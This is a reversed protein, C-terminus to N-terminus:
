RLARAYDETDSVSERLRELASRLRTRVTEGDTNTAVALEALTLQATLKMVLAEREVLPLAATCEAIRRSLLQSRASRSAIPSVEPDSEEISTTRASPTAVRAGEITSDGHGIILQHLFGFLWSRFRMEIHFSGAQGVLALFASQTFETALDAAGTIGYATSYVLRAYRRVVVALATRDGRQYRVMLAEDTGERHSDPKDTMITSAL